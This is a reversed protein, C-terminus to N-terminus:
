NITLQEIEANTLNLSTAFISSNLENITRPGILPFIIKSSQIVYALAIEIPEVNREAAINFCIERKKLNSESHWVRKEEDMSPNSFHDSTAIEKKKIFFGRATSSWPFLIINNQDIYDLFNSDIAVCGPWVPDIM